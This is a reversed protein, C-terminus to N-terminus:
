PEDGSTSHYIGNPEVALDHPRGGVRRADQRCFNRQVDAVVEIPLRALSQFTEIREFRALQRRQALEGIMAHLGRAVHNFLVPDGNNYTLVGGLELFARVAHRYKPERHEALRPTDEVTGYTERSCGVGEPRLSDYGTGAWNSVLFLEPIWYGEVHEYVTLHVGIGAGTPSLFKVGGITRQLERALGQAFDEASPFAHAGRAKELLWNCTSFHLAECSAM